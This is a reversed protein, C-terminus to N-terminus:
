NQPTNTPRLYSFDLESNERATPSSIDSVLIEFSKDGEFMSENLMKEVQRLKGTVETCNGISVLHRCDVVMFVEFKTKIKIQDLRGSKYINTERVDALLEPVYACDRDGDRIELTKGLVASKVEPFDLRVLGCSIFRDRYESSKIVTLEESLAFYEGYSEIYWFAKEETVRVTVKGFVSRSVSIDVVCPFLEKVKKEAKSTNYSFYGSGESIGTADLIEERTCLGLGEVEIERVGISINITMCVAFIVAITAWAVIIKLKTSIKQERTVNKEQKQANQAATARENLRADIHARNQPNQPRLTTNQTRSRGMPVKSPANQRRKDNKNM